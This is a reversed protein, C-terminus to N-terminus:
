KINIKRKVLECLTQFDGPQEDLPKKLLDKVVANIADKGTIRNCNNDEVKFCENVVTSLLQKGGMMDLWNGYGIELNEKGGYFESLIIDLKGELNNINTYQSLDQQRQSFKPIKNKLQIIADEKTSFDDVRKFNEIWKKKFEERCAIIM